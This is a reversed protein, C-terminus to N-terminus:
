FRRSVGIQVMTADLRALGPSPEGGIRWDAQRRYREGRVRLTIAGFASLRSDPSRTGNPDAAFGPPFPEGL